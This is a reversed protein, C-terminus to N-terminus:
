NVVIFSLPARPSTSLFSDPRVVGGTGGCINICSNWLLACYALDLVYHRLGEHGETRTPNPNAAGGGGSDSVESIM